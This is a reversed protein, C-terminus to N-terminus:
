CRVTLFVCPFFKMIFLDLDFVNEIKKYQNMQKQFCFGIITLSNLVNTITANWGEAYIWFILLFCIHYKNPLIPSELKVFRLVIRQFTKFFWLYVSKTIKLLVKLYINRLIMCSFVGIKLLVRSFLMHSYELKTTLFASFIFKFFNWYDNQRLPIISM